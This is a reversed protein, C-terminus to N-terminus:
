HTLRKLQEIFEQLQKEDLRYKGDVEHKSTAHIQKVNSINIIENVNSVRVGGGFLIQIKDGYKENIQKIDKAGDIINEFPAQGSTLVRDVQLEIMLQITNEIDKPVDFARHFVAEKNYSHILSVMKKTYEIDVTNDENIFGFVIGDAGADLMNKADILMAEKESQTYCYDGGRSRDMCCIPTSINQKLYKITEISPTLGGVEINTVLEIRDIPYKSAIIADQENCICVEFKIDNIM